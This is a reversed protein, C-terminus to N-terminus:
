NSYYFNRFQHLTEEEHRCSKHTHPQSLPCSSLEPHLLMLTFLEAVVDVVPQM